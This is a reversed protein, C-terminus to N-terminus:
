TIWSSCPRFGSKTEDNYCKARINEPRSSCDGALCCVYDEEVKDGFFFGDKDSCSYLNTIPEFLDVAGYNGTKEDCVRQFTRGAESYLIADRYCQCDQRSEELLQHHPGITGDKQVCYWEAGVRRVPAYSGDFDCNLDKVAVVDLGHMTAEKYLRQGATWESDCVRLYEGTTDWNTLNVSYCPLNRWQHEPLVAGNLKGTEPDVCYCVGSDMDCQLPEYNGDASCHIAAINGAARLAHVRRSCACTQNEAKRWFEMGFIRNGDSDACFCIGDHITGKCQKPSYTGDLECNPTWHLTKVLGLTRKYDCSETNEQDSSGSGGATPMSCVKSIQGLYNCELGPKCRNKLIPCFSDTCNPDLTPAPPSVECPDGVDLYKACGACCGCMTLGREYSSGSAICDESTIGECQIEDCVNTERGNMLDCVLQPCGLPRPDPCIHQQEEGFTAGLCLILAFLFTLFAMAPIGCMSIKLNNYVMKRIVNKDSNNTM